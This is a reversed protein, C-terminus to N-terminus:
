AVEADDSGSLAKQAAAAQGERRVDELQKRVRAPYRRKGAAERVLEYLAQGRTLGRSLAEYSVVAELLLASVDDGVSINMQKNYRTM